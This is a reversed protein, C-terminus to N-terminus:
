PQPVNSKRIYVSLCGEIAQIDRTDFLARERKLYGSLMEHNLVWVKCGNSPVKVFWGPYLVVPQVSLERTLAEKLFGRMWNAQAKAQVIPDRDPTFGNVTINEGDYVIECCGKAPKSITKTEITYIGTPGILVHDINFGDGVIDHLVRYGRERLRELSQGVVKEGDRGQKLWQLQRRTKVAKVLVFIWVIGALITIVVPHPPLKFLARMWEMAAVVLALAALVAFDLFRDAIRDIEEQISQGPLRLPPNKLPSRKEKKKKAFSTM